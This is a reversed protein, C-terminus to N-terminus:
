KHFVHEDYAQSQIYGPFIVVTQPQSMMIGQNEYFHHLM